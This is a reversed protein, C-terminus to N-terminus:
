WRKNRNLGQLVVFAVQIYHGNWGIWIQCNCPRQQMFLSPLGVAVNCGISHKGDSGFSQKQTCMKNCNM